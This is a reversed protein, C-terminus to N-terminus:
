LHEFTEFNCCHECLNKIGTNRLHEKLEEESIEEGLEKFVNILDKVSIFGDTDKDYKRFIARTNVQRQNSSGAMKVFGWTLYFLRTIETTLATNHRGERIM